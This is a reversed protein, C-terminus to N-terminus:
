PLTKKSDDYAKIANFNDNIGGYKRTRVTGIYLINRRFLYQALEVSTFLNDTFVHLHFRNALAPELLSSVLSLTLSAVMARTETLKPNDVEEPLYDLPPITIGDRTYPRYNLTLGEQAMLFLKLGIPIPKSKM